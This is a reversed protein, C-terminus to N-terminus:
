FVCRELSNYYTLDFTILVIDSKRYYMPILSEYKEQGATDWIDLKVNDKFKSPIGICFSAGITSAVDNYFNKDVFRTIISSKGVSAKGLIILKFRNM